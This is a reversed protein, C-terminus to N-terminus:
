VRKNKGPIPTPSVPLSMDWALKAPFTDVKSNLADEWTIIKGTYAAMRGMIATLTSEAVQVLENLPKGAKISAVLDTHEQVYPANDNGQLVREGNILYDNVQCKGKTGVLAESVNEASDAIHQCYGHSIVGKGYSYEIAFHDFIHGVVNPDGEKRSSRGGMGVASTPHGQMAWNIVDLNHIHQECIHDGCTWLFHYWNNIQYEADSMGPKRPRFWIGGGNWYCRASVIEGIAGDHVRKMTELYGTQHRRQTGAVIALNKKKAEEAAALVKRIGPGDVAVPKECFIHKGAQVAAEVHGPRFGPPTALIVLDIGADLVQQFANLGGFCREDPVDVRDKYRVLRKKLGTAHDKYADGLAVIKTEKSGRLCDEAAGSGRGGCGIIGVKIVDDGGAYAHNVVSTLAAGAAVAASSKFFDRRNTSM